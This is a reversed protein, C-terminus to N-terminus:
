KPAGRKPATKRRAQPKAATVAPPGSPELAALRDQVEKAIRNIVRLNRRLQKRLDRLETDLDHLHRDQLLDHSSPM